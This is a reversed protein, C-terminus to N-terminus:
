TTSPAPSPRSSAASTPAARPTAIVNVFSRLETDYGTGWRVAVDVHLEREVEQPTMHGKDDLLPM